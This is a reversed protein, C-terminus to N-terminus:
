QLYKKYASIGYVPFQLIYVVVVVKYKIFIVYNIWPTIM